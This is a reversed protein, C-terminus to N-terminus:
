SQVENLRLFHYKVRRTRSCSALVRSFMAVGSLIVDHACSAFAPDGRIGLEQPLNLTAERVDRASFTSFSFPSALHQPVESKVTANQRRRLM